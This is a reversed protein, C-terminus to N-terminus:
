IRLEARAPREPAFRLGFSDGVRADVSLRNVGLWAPQQEAVGTLIGIGEVVMDQGGYGAAVFGVPQVVADCGGWCLDASEDGVINWPLRSNQWHVGGNDAVCVYTGTNGPQRMAVGFDGIFDLDYVGASIVAQWTAGGDVSRFCGYPDWPTYRNIALLGTQLDFWHMDEVPQFGPFGCKDAWTAGSDRTEYLTGVADSV